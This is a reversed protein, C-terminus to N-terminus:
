VIKFKLGKPLDRRMWGRMMNWVGNFGPQLIDAEDLFDQAAEDQSIVAELANRHAFLLFFGALTAGTSPFEPSRASGKRSGDPQERRTMPSRSSAMARASCTLGWRSLFPAELRGTPRTVHGFQLTSIGRM